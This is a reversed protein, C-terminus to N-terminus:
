AKAAKSGVQSKIGDLAELTRMESHTLHTRTAWVVDEPIGSLIADLLDVHEKCVSKMRQLLNRRSFAEAFTAVRLSYDGLHGLMRALITNRQKDCLLTHLMRDIAIYAEQLEQTLPDRLQPALILINSRIHQIDGVVEDCSKTQTSLEAFAYPELLRRMEFVNRVEVETMGAVYAKHNPERVVLGDISLRLLGERVPTASVDLRKALVDINLEQLPPLRHTIIDQKLIQYVYEQLTKKTRESRNSYRSDDM